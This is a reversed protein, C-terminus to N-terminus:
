GYREERLLEASDSLQRGKLKERIRAAMERADAMDMRAAQELVIRLEAQLSRGNVSAQKKLREVVKDDVNRMLIQAMKHPGGEKEQFALMRSDNQRSSRLWHMEQQSELGVVM